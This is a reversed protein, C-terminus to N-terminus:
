KKFDEFMLKVKDQLDPLPIIKYNDNKEFFWVIYLDDIEVGTNKQIIYKYTNLQLAYTNLECDDMDSFIGSIKQYRNESRLAKNTKWDWIQLKNKKKNYFLMDVMGSVMYEEDYVIFEPKIAILKGFSDNYFNHFQNKIINFQDIIPDYGFHEIISKSPYEYLKNYYYNEIYNHLPSGKYTSIDNLFDWAYIVQSKDIGYEESKINAWYEEDFHSTYKHILTTVSTLKRGDLYYSHTSDEFKIKNFTEFLKLPIIM